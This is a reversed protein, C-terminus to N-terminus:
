GCRYKCGVHGTVAGFALRYSYLGDFHGSSRKERNDCLLCCRRCCSGLPGFRGTAERSHRFELMDGGAGQIAVKGTVDNALLWADCIGYVAVEYSTFQTEIKHTFNGAFHDVGKDKYLFADANRPLNVWTVKTDPAIDLYGGVDNESYTSLDEFAM